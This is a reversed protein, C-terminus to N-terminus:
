SEPYPWLDWYSIWAGIASGAPACFMQIGWLHRVLAWQRLQRCRVYFRWYSWQLRQLAHLRIPRPWAVSGFVALIEVDM